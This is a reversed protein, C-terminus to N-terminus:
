STAEIIALLLGIDDDIETEGSERGIRKIIDSDLKELLDQTSLAEFADVPGTRDTSEVVEPTEQRIDDRESEVKPLEKTPTEVANGGELIKPGFYGRHFFTANFYQKAFM